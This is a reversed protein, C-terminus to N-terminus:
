RHIRVEECAMRGEEIVLAVAGQLLPRDDDEVAFLVQGNLRATIQTGQVQLEFNLSEDWAFSFGTEALVVRGDLVKVLQAKQDATM